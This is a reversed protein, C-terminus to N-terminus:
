PFMRFVPLSSLNKPKRGPDYRGSGCLKATERRYGTLDPLIAYDNGSNWNVPYWIGNIRSALGSQVLRRIVSPM